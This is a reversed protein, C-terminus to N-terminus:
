PNGKLRFLTCRTALTSWVKDAYKGGAADADTRIAVQAGDPIRAALEASWAGSWLGLVPPANSVLDGRLTAQALYDTEGESLVVRLPEGEPWWTPAKGSSLVALGAADALVLGSASGPGAAAAAAKEGAPPDPTVARARLSEMHGTPGFAPFLCRWERGRNWPTGRFYAWRPLELDRPLARALNREVVRDLDFGRDQLWRAVQDDELVPVCRAWLARVEDQPPRPPKEPTPTPTPLPFPKPPRVPRSDGSGACWGRDAYWARVDAVQDRTLNRLKDGALRFAVLDLVDGSADCRFCRWGRRDPRLGVPGRKDTSGRQDAGCAPCPRFARADRDLEHGLEAAVGAADVQHAEDIWTM